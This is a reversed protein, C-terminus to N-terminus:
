LSHLGNYEYKTSALWWDKFDCLIWILLFILTGFPLLFWFVSASSIPLFKLAQTHTHWAWQAATPAALSAPGEKPQSPSCRLAFTWICTESQSAECASSKSSTSELQCDAQWEFYQAHKDGASHYTPAWVPVTDHSLREAEPHLGTVLAYTRYKSWPPSKSEGHQVNQIQGTFQSSLCPTRVWKTPSQSAAPM